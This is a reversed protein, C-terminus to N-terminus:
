KMFHGALMGAGIGAGAWLVKEFLTSTKQASIYSKLDKISDALAADRQSDLLKAQKYDAIQANLLDKEKFWSPERVTKYEQWDVLASVAARYTELGMTVIKGDTTIDAAKLIQSGKDVLQKPTATKVQALQTLFARENAAASAELDAYAKAQKDIQDFLDRIQGALLAAEGNGGVALVNKGFVTKRLLFGFVVFGVINSWIPYSIGLFSGGGLDFELNVAHTMAVAAAQAAAAPLLARGLNTHLVTGTLNFVPQARNPNRCEFGQATKPTRIGRGNLSLKLAPSDQFRFQRFEGVLYRSFRRPSSGGRRGDQEQFFPPFNRGITRDGSRAFGAV